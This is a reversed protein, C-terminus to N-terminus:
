EEQMLAGGKLKHRGNDRHPSENWRLQGIRFEPRACAISLVELNGADALTM